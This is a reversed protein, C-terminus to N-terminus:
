KYVCPIWQRILERPYYCPIQCSGWFVIHRPNRYSGESEPKLLWELGDPGAICIACHNCGGRAVQWEVIEGDVRVSVEYANPDDTKYVFDNLIADWKIQGDPCDTQANAPAILLIMMAAGILLAKPMTQM